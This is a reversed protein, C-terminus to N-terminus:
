LIHSPYELMSHNTKMWDRYVNLHLIECIRLYYKSAVNDGSTGNYAIYHPSVCNREYHFTLIVHFALIVFATYTMLHIEYSM